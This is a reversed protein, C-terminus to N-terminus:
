SVYSILQFPTGSLKTTTSSPASATTDHKSMKGTIFSKICHHIIIREASNARKLHRVIQSLLSAKYHLLFQGTALHSRTQAHLIFKGPNKKLGTYRGKYHFANAPMIKYWKLGRRGKRKLDFVSFYLVNQLCSEAKRLIPFIFCRATSHLLSIFQWEPSTYSKYFQILSLFSM